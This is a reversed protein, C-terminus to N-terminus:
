ANVMLAACVSALCNLEDIPMSEENTHIDRYGVSLVVTPLGKANLENADSGGCTVTHQPDRGAVRIAAEARRVIPDGPDFRFGRTEFVTEFEATGCQQAAADRCCAIMTEMVEVGKGNDLSRVQMTMEARPPIVNPAEGGSILGVNATTEEDVRGLSMAGIATAAMVIANRGQEPELGAHAARGHFVVKVNRSSPAALSVLGVPGDIDPVFAMQSRLGTIDFAKSGIHGVDEGVTFLFEVPVHSVGAGAVAEAAEVIAAVAAKDDAGLVSTGDTHVAADRVVPRMGETPVVTDMHACLLIPDADAFMGQGPWDGVLNRHEDAHLRVGICELRKRLLDSVAGENPYYSNTGTILLFLDLLRDPQISLANM